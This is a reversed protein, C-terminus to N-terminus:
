WASEADIEAKRTLYRQEFERYDNRTTITELKELADSAYSQLGVELATLIYQKHLAVSRKNIDIAEVLVDYATSPDWRLLERSLHLVMPEDFPNKRLYNRLGNADKAALLRSAPHDPLPKQEQLALLLRAKITHQPPLKPKLISMLGTLRDFNGTTLLDHSAKTWFNQAFSSDATSLLASLEALQYDEHFYYLRTLQKGQELNERNELQALSNAVSLYSTDLSTLHNAWELGQEFSVELAAALKAFLAQDGGAEISADLYSLAMEPSNQDLAILGMQYYYNAVQEGTAELALQHLSRIAQNIDLAQYYTLAVANKATWYTSEEIPGALERELLGAIAESGFYGAANTLYAMRHLPYSPYLNSTDLPLSIRDETNLAKALINAKVALNSEKFSTVEKDFPKVRWLNVQTAQTWENNSEAQLLTTEAQRLKGQDLYILGLNNLLQSNNPFERLGDQLSVLAPTAENLKAFTGSYNIFAQPSPYRVTARGFRYNSQDFDNEQLKQYGLQYNSFHNDQGYVAGQSFYEKALLDNGMTQAQAGLYNFKGAQYLLWPERSALYFLAAVAVLGALRASIYPFNQNRYAVKYVQLGQVLPTIFNVLIYIFFMVGFGIHTYLIFYHFAEYVPDNGRFFALGYFAMVMIGVSCFFAYVMRLPMLGQFLYAKHKLAWLAVISSLIFVAFPNFFTLEISLYGYKNAYYLGWVTLYLLSFISFHLANGQGGKSRTILYLIGFILDEAITILFLLSLIVWGFYSRSILQEQLTILEVGSFLAISAFAGLITLLRLAYPSSTAFAHFVYAPLLIILLTVIAAGSSTDSFGFLQIEPLQLSIIFFIMAGMILIFWFRTLYTATTLFIALGIFMLLLFAGDRQYDRTIPGATFSEALAYKSGELSFTFPGKVITSHEFTETEATTTVNWNISSDYGAFYHYCFLGAVGLFFVILLKQPM